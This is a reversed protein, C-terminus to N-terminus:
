CFHIWSTDMLICTRDQGQETPRPDSTALLQPTPRLSLILDRMATATTYAPLQLELKVGLRPVDMHQLHSGLFRFFFIKFNLQVMLNSKQIIKSLTTESTFSFLSYTVLIPLLTCLSYNVSIKTTFSLVSIPRYCRPLSLLYYFFLNHELHCPHTHTLTHTLTHTHTHTHTHTTLVSLSLILLNLSSDTSNELFSHIDSFPETM